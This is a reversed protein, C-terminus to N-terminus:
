RQEQQEDRRPRPQKKIKCWRTPDSLVPAQRHQKANGQQVSTEKQITQIQESIVNCCLRPINKTVNAPFPCFHFRFPAQMPCLFATGCM